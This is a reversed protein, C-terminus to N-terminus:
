EINTTLQGRAPQEILLKRWRQDGELFVKQFALAYMGSTGGGAANPDFWNFHTAGAINIIMKPTPEAIGGYVYQAMDCPAVTDADGCLVLTPVRVQSGEGGWPALGISTKLSADTASAITTGGGGMSYGSTGYRGSLKGSLPGGSKTNEQKLEEISALLKTARIDPVDAGTTTTVVVVIGHSAYLPGWPAMEPGTNLFGGCLALAALPPEADSPYYVTGTSIEYQAPTYPGAAVTLESPDPGHCLCDGDDCCTGTTQPTGSTGAGSAGGTGATLTSGAAGAVSVGGVGATVAGGVGASAAIAGGSGAAATTGARPLGGGIAAAGATGGVGRGAVPATPSAGVRGAAGASGGSVPPAATGAQWGAGGGAASTYGQSGGPSSGGCAVTLCAAAGAVSMWARSARM